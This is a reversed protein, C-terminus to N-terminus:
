YYVEEIPTVLLTKNDTWRIWVEDRIGDKQQEGTLRVKLWQGITYVPQFSIVGEPSLILSGDPNDYIKPNAVSVAVLRKLYNAWSEYLFWAPASVDSSHNSTWYPTGNTYLM